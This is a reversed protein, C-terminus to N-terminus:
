FYGIEYKTYMYILWQWRTVIWNYNIFIIIVNMCNRSGKQEVLIHPPLFLAFLLFPVLLFLFFPHFLTFFVLVCFM